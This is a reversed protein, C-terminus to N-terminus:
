KMRLSALSAIVERRSVDPVIALELVSLNELNVAYDETETTSGEPSFNWRQRVIETTVKGGAPSWRLSFEQTRETVKEHFRLQIRHIWIPTDFIIRIEQEGTQSARWGRTDDGTLAGEIPFDPHESSVEVTTIQELGLWCANPSDPEADNRGVIRKRM